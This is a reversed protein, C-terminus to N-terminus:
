VLLSKIRFDADAAQEATPSIGAEILKRGAMHDAPSNITDIAILRGNEDYHFASLSARQPNQRTVLTKSNHSLGVMQIKMDGQDSWFWPVARYAQPNGTLTDALNKAQDTANQVSELRIRTGTLWHEYVCVDGIAYINDASTQFHADVVIGNETKLGAEKALEDNPIVGIGILVIDASFKQNGCIVGSVKRNETEIQSIPTDLFVKIGMSQFKELVFQSIQPAVVRGMLRPAAEVVCVDMGLYKLTAAAELGIFGGGVIVVKKGSRAAKRLLQADNYDRLQCIEDSDIGPIDISRPRAGTAIILKWYELSQGNDLMVVGNEKDIQVARVPKILRINNDDFYQEARLVQIGHNEDKLFAKSLPPRHYPTQPDDSILTISGEFDAERLSVAMQVGAHSAGIIVIDGTNQSQTATM